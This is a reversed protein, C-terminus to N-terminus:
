KRLYGIHYEEWKKRAKKSHFFFDETADKKGGLRNLLSQCGGPHQNIFTTVDYVKNNAIIWASEKNDHKKVEEISFSQECSHLSGM